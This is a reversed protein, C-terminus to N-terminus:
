SLRPRAPLQTEPQGLDGLGEIYAIARDRLKHNRLANFANLLATSEADMPHKPGRESYLWEVTVDLKVALAVCHEMMPLGGTTWKHVSSQAIGILAGAAKQTPKMGADIMAEQVRLWFTRKKM